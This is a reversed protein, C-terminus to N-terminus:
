QSAALTQPLDAIMGFINNHAPDALHLSLAGIPGKRTILASAAFGAFAVMALRGNKIEKLRMDNKGKGMGLPDFPVIDAVGSTGTKLWNELRKNELFGMLPLLVALQPVPPLWYEAAGAEYWVPKIGVLDTFLIGAVAIMAWQGNVRQSCCVNM